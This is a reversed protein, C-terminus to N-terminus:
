VSVPSVVNAISFFDITLLFAAAGVGILFVDVVFAFTSVALGAALLTIAAKFHPGYYIDCGTPYNSL